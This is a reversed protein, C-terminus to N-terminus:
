NEQNVKAYLKSFTTQSVLDALVQNDYSFYADYFLKEGNFKVDLSLTLLMINFYSNKILSLIAQYTKIKNATHKVKSYDYRQDTQEKGLSLIYIPISLLFSEIEQLLLKHKSIFITAEEDSFISKIGYLQIIQSNCFFCMITDDLQKLTLEQIDRYFYKLIVYEKQEYTYNSFDLIGTYDINRLYIFSTNINEDRDESFKSQLIDISINEELDFPNEFPLTM